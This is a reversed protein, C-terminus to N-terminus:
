FVLKMKMLQNLFYDHKNEVSILKNMLPNSCTRVPRVRSARCNYLKFLVNYLKFQFFFYELFNRVM